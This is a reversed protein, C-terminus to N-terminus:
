FILAIPSITKFAFIIQLDYKLPSSSNFTKFLKEMLTSLSSVLNNSSEFLYSWKFQVLQDTVSIVECWGQVWGIRPVNIRQFTDDRNWNLWAKKSPDRVEFVLHGHKALASRLCFLTRLWSDDSLFVQAVNGTMVALDASLSSQLADVDGCIWRVKDSFPKTRAFDLSAKAPDIGVVELDERAMLTSLCGTGCGVDIVSRSGLEKILEIYHVLDRREGDFSDYIAVLRSDEFIPDAM